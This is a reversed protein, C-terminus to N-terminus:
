QWQWQVERGHVTSYRGKAPRRCAPAFEVQECMMRVSVFGLSVSYVFIFIDGDDSGLTPSSGEKM